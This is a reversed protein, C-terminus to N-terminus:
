PRLWQAACGPAEACPRELCRTAQLLAEDTLYRYEVLCASQDADKGRGCKAARRSSEFCFDRLARSADITKVVFDHCGTWAQGNQVASCAVGDLCLSLQGLYSRRLLGLRRGEAPCACSEGGGCDRSRTCFAECVIAAAGDDGTDPTSPTPAAPEAARPSESGTAGTCGAIVV